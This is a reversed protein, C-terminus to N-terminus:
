EGKGMLELRHTIEKTADYNPVNPKEHMFFGVGHGAYDRVIGYGYPRVFEEIVRGIDIVRNGVICVSLAEYICRRTVDLLTKAEESIEGIPYTAATDGIMGNKKVAIDLSLIDGDKLIIDKSPIGHVIVNNPSICIEAPYGHYGKSASIGGNDRIFEGAWNDIMLTNIGAVLRSSLYKLCDAAVRGAETIAEIDKVSKIMLQPM